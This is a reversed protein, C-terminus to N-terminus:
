AALRGRRVRIEDGIVEAVTRHGAFPMHGRAAVPRGVFPRSRLYRTM